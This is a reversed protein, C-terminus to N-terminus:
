RILLSFVLTPLLQFYQQYYQQSYRSQNRLFKSLTVIVLLIPLLGGLNSVVILYSSTLFTVKLALKFCQAAFQHNDLAQYVTGKLLYVSSMLEQETMVGSTTFHTTLAIHLNM